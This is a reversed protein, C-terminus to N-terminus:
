QRKLRVIIAPATLADGARRGKSRGVSRKLRYGGVFERFAFRIDAQDRFMSRADKATHEYIRNPVQIVFARGSKTKGVELKRAYPVTNTFVYEEGPPIRGGPRVELGDVFLTHGKIYDGSVRPSRKVLEDGIWALVSEILEWEAIITGGNPKVSDLPANKRGDVTVTLPPDRGLIQRNIRSAEEIGSRAFAAAERAQSQPSLDARIMAAIDREIPDIRVKLAM